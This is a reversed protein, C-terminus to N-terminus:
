WLVGAWGIKQVDVVVLGAVLVLIDLERIRLANEWGCGQAGFRIWREGVGERSEAWAEM